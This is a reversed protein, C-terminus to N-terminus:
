HGTLSRRSVPFDFYTDPFLEPKYTYHWWEEALNVFGLSEMTSKLLLRNARQQGTIRPDLTHSLTDFCDYGTGMDVSNDPFREAQPAYCPVLKEGPVYPRTPLAPLKVITLDLTSGRSHGSKEAIYGDAFLRTKDVRPYFEDKMRQDDLDKAWEVFDNVARQPRYCDYVKLTYGRRLLHRQAQHLAEAAPRTLVCMPRRYGDVRHGTFNHPTFYRIEQRITPDVDSLAVFEKPAKPEATAQAPAPSAVALLAAVPLALARLAATFRTM